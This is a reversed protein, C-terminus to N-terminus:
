AELILTAPRSAAFTGLQVVALAVEAGGDLDAAFDAADYNWEPDGREVTRVVVGDRSITIRYTEREEVLPADGADLWTWGARSRRTWSLAFGGAGDPTARLHVPSPPRLTEGASMADALAPEADGVGTAMASVPQGLASLPADYARVTEAEILVFREGEAHGAVAFETGRRGRLLRSLRWASGGLPEARGFQILEEGLLALNAGGVLRTDDADALLMEDHLLAVEVSNVADFVMTSGAVLETSAIGMTAAAATRGIDQWVTGDDVSVSLAARRWGPSAGAAAMLLRPASAPTDGLDPLDLLHLVTEGHVLDTPVVPRGAEAIEGGGAPHYPARVLTLSLAMKEFAWHAVRWVGAVGPLSVYAGPGVALRRWPLSVNRETREAWLRALNAEVIRKAADADLAAPLDLREATRGAGPRWARQLGAQYDRAPEYYGITVERAPAAGRQQAMRDARAGEATAALEDTLIDADAAGPAILVLGEGDDALSLPAARALTEVAGRVSDGSAAYGGLMQPAEGGIAGGSLEAAMAAISVPDDDAEVEFTLSPIRNGYDALQLGEFVAYAIGRYAPADEEASAIFPDVAQDDDGLHLRYGTETKFDGAEGRLLNGDAWIRKVARIPRASLAVAFNAAYEYTTVNPRGKGGSTSRTEVLDTAWIVTGAVRMTGFIKPIQTGYSSTQVRLDELRPGQRGKPKFIAQDVQQGIIAGIAGGIPGGVITGVTTLVLTAM